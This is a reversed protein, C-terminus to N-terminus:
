LWFGIGFVLVFGVVYAWYWPDIEDLLGEDLMQAMYAPSYYHGAYAATGIVLLYAGLAVTALIVMVDYFIFALIACVAISLM